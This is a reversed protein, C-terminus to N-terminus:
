TTKMLNQVRNKALDALQEISLDAFEETEISKGIAIHIPVSKIMWGGSPLADRSGIIALPMIPINGDKAIVFSGRKFMMLHGTKTRTGEPFTIVNKGAKIKAAAKRLSEFAKEKNKRDVFIHGIFAMYQGLFPVRALEKKAIYFLGIPIVRAICVVDLHSAHNCVFIHPVKPNLNELGSVTVRIGCIALIGPTYFYYGTIYHVRSGNWLFLMLVMGLVACFATWFFVLAIRMVNVIGKLVFM